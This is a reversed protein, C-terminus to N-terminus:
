LGTKLKGIIVANRYDHMIDQVGSTDGLKDSVKKNYGHVQAYLNKPNTDLFVILVLCNGSDIEEKTIEVGEICAVDYITYHVETKGTDIPGLKVTYKYTKNNLREDLVLDVVYGLSAVNLNKYIGKELAFYPAEVSERDWLKSKYGM